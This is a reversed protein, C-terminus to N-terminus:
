SERTFTCSRRPATKRTTMMTKRKRLRPRPSRPRTPDLPRLCPLLSLLATPRNAMCTRTRIGRRRRPQNLTRETVTVTVAM